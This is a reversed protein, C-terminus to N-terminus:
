RPLRVTCNSAYEMDVKYQNDLNTFAWAAVLFVIVLVMIKIFTKDNETM